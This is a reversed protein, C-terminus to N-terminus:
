RDSPQPGKAASAASLQRQLAALRRDWRDGVDALWAMAGRLHDPVVEYRVERARGRRRAVLVGAGARANLHKVVAHRSIDFDRALETATLPGRRSLQDLLRRRNPDGLAAFVGDSAAPRPDANPL